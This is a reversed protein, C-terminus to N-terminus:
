HRLIERLLSEPELLGRVTRAGGDHSLKGEDIARYMQGVQEAFARSAGFGMFIPVVAEVPLHETQVPRNVLRALMSALDLPSIDRPGSLEVIERATVPPGELLARAAASGVDRTSVMPIVNDPRIFTPLKGEKVAGLVPAWSELFYAARLFTIRSRVAGLREEAAHLTRCIGTGEAHQAAMSSLMVVHGIGSGDVARAIADAIRWGDSIPDPSRMDQPSLLYAGEAGALGRTLSHADDLSAIAIEAGRARWPGGTAQDRLVVRVPKGARLLTDAVISGTRGSAGAVVFM